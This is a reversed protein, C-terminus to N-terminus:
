LLSSEIEGVASHRWSAAPSKGSLLRETESLVDDLCVEYCHPDVPSREATHGTLELPPMWAIMKSNKGRSLASLAANGLRSGLMRDFASPRGGRVVHGLVTVRTDECVHKEVCLGDVLGKLRHTSVAVGEAVIILVRGGPRRKRVATIASVVSEVLEAESKGSEPFLVLDAGVAVYSAMALYGCQRGMVEVFFTRQHAIATDSIKDCAEVITNLATDVGLSSRTLGIDNDISAPIGVIKVTTQNGQRKALARAGALSGNGGVVVLSDVGANQLNVLARDQAEPKHFELCRASGLVTGGDRLVLDVDSSVLERFDSELLGTYGREVGLVQLGRARALLVVSRVAANM